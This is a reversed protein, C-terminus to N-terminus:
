LLNALKTTTSDIANVHRCLHLGATLLRDTASHKFRSRALPSENGYNKIKLKLIRIRLLLKPDPVSMIFKVNIWHLVLYPWKGDFLPLSQGLYNKMKREVRQPGLAHKKVSLFTSFIGQSYQWKNRTFGLHINIPVAM